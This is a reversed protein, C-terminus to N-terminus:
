RKGNYRGSSGHYVCGTVSARDIMQLKSSSVVRQRNFPVKWQGFRIKAFSYKKYEAWWDILEVAKAKDGDDTTTAKTGQSKLALEIKYKFDKYAHGDWKLRARRLRFSSDDEEGPGNDRDEYGYRM